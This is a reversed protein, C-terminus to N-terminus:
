QRQIGQLGARVDDLHRGGIAFTVRRHERDADKDTRARIQRHDHLLPSIRARGPQCLRGFSQSSAKQSDEDDANTLEKLAAELLERVMAPNGKGKTERMVQGLLWNFVKEEGGRYRAVEAPYKALAETVAQALVDTDSVQALGLEGIIESAPHGPRM